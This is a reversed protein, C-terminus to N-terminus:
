RFYNNLYGWWDWCGNPNAITAIAQPFLVIINNSEAAEIYGTKTAYIDGVVSRNVFVYVNQILDHITLKPANTKMCVGYCFFFEYYNSKNFVDMSRLISDVRFLAMLVVVQCMCTALLTWAQTLLIFLSFIPKTSNLSNVQLLPQQNM